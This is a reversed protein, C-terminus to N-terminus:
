ENLWFVKALFRIIEMCESSIGQREIPLAINYVFNRKDLDEANQNFYDIVERPLKDYYQKPIHELVELVEGCVKPSYDKLADFM